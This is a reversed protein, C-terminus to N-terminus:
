TESEGIDAVEEDTLSSEPYEEPPLGAQIRLGEDIRRGMREIEEESMVSSPRKTTAPSTPRSSVLWGTTEEPRPKRWGKYTSGAM